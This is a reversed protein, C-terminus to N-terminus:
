QPPLVTRDINRRGSVRITPSGMDDDYGYVELSFKSCSYGKVTDDTPDYEETFLRYQAVKKGLSASKYIFGITRGVNVDRLRESECDDQSIISELDLEEQTMERRENTQRELEEAEAEVEEESMDTVDVSPM